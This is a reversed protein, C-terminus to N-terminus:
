KEDFESKLTTEENPFDGLLDPTVPSKEDESGGVEDEKEEKAEGAGTAGGEEM